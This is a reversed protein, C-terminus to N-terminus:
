LTHYPLIEIKELFKYKELYKKIAKRFNNEGVINLLTWCRIWYKKNIKEIYGRTIITDITPAYTSPRGIGETEM